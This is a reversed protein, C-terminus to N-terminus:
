GSAMMRITCKTCPLLESAPLNKMVPTGSITIIITFFIVVDHRLYIEFTLRNTSRPITLGRRGIGGRKPTQTM